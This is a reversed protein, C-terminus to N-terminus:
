FVFWYYHFIIDGTSPDEVLKEASAIVPQLNIRGNVM